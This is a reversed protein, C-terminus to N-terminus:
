LHLLLWDAAEGDFGHWAAHGALLAVIVPEDHGLAQIIQDRLSTAPLQSEIVWVDDFANWCNASLSTLVAGLRKDAGKSPCTALYLM